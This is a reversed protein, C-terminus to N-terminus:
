VRTKRHLHFLVRDAADEKEHFADGEAMLQRLTAFAKIQGERAMSNELLAFAAEAARKGYEPGPAIEPVVDADLIINPLGIRPRGAREYARMQFRDPQYVGIHPMGLFALELTATGASAIALACESLQERRMGPDIVLQVPVDWGRLKAELQPVLRGLTPLIFGTVESHGALRKAIEGFLPMHRRLEGSRSGPFLAIKAPPSPTRIAALYPNHAGPHGVYRTPPGGLKAMVTPEFPFIALVEDFMGNLKQAREPRWAWVSPAVYLVIPQRYGRRRLGKAVLYSFEQADIFVAVDPQSAMIARIVQEVRLLLAPLRLAVDVFGMVAIRDASFLLNLGAASMAEGGVGFAEIDHTRARLGTLLEAGILDGSSEGALLFLKFGAM